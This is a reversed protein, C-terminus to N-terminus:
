SKQSEEYTLIEEANNMEDNQGSGYKELEDLLRSFKSEKRGELTLGLEKYFKSLQSVHSAIKNYRNARRETFVRTRDLTSSENVGDIHSGEHSEQTNPDYDAYPLILLREHQPSLSVNFQTSLAHLASLYGASTRSSFKFSHLVSCARCTSQHETFRVLNKLLHLLEDKILVESSRAEM